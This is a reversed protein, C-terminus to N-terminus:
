PLRKDKQFEDTIFSPLGKHNEFWILSVYFKPVIYRYQKYQMVTFVPILNRETAMIGNM